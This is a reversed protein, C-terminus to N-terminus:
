ELNWIDAPAITTTRGANFDAESKKMKAVFESNYAKDNNKETKFDVKLAKMIAKLAALQEKDKPLVILTEM